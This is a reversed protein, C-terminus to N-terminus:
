LSWERYFLMEKTSKIKHFCIKGTSWLTEKDGIQDLVYVKM